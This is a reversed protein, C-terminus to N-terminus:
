VVKGSNDLVLISASSQIIQVGSDTTTISIFFEEIEEVINDFIISISHCIIRSDLSDPIFIITINSTEYDELAAVFIVLLQVAVLLLLCRGIASSDMTFLEVMLERQILGDLVVCVEILRSDESVVYRAESLSANVM